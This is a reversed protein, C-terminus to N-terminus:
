HRKGKMLWDMYKLGAYIPYQFVDGVKDAVWNFEKESTTPANKKDERDQEHEAQRATEKERQFGLNAMMIQFRREEAEERRRANEEQIDLARSQLAIRVSERQNDLAQNKISQYEDFIGLVNRVLDLKQAKSSPATVQPYSPPSGATNGTVNGGGYVLNPNLGAIQLRQMQKAPTNYANQLKWMAVDRQYAEEALKQNQQFTQENLRRQDKYYQQNEFYNTGIGVAGKVVSGLIGSLSNDGSGFISGLLGSNSDSGFLSGLMGKEGFLNGFISGQSGGNAVGNAAGAVAGAKIQDSPSVGTIDEGIKLYPDIAWGAVGDLLDGISGTVKSFLSM